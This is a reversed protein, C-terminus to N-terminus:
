KTPLAAPMNTPTETAPMTAPFMRNIRQALPGMLRHGEKKIPYKTLFKKNFEINGLKLLNILDKIDNLFVNVQYPKNDKPNIFSGITIYGQELGFGTVAKGEILIPLKSIPYEPSEYIIPSTLNILAGGFYVKNDWPDNIWVDINNLKDKIKNMQDDSLKFEQIDPIKQTIDQFNFKVRTEEAFCSTSIGVLTLLLFLKAKM